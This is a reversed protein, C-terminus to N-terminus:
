FEVIGLREHGIVRVLAPMSLIEMTLFHEVTWGQSRTKVRSSQPCGKAVMLSTTLKNSSVSKLALSRVEIQIVPTGVM